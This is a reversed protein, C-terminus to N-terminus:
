LLNGTKELAHGDLLVAYPKLFPNLAVRRDNLYEFVLFHSQEGRLQGGGKSLGLVIFPHGEVQTLGLRRDLAHNRRAPHINLVVFQVDKESVPLDDVPNGCVTHNVITPVRHTWCRRFSKIEVKM